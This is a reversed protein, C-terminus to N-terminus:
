LSMLLKNPFYAKKFAQWSNTIRKSVNKNLTQIVLTQRHLVDTDSFNCNYWGKEPTAQLNESAILLAAM